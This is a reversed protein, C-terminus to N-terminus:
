VNNVIFSILVIELCWPPYKDYYVYFTKTYLYPDMPKKLLLDMSISLGFDIIVPINRKEDILINNEKLDFHILKKEKLIDVSELLYIHFKSCYHIFKSKNSEQKLMYFYDILTYKGVYRIQNSYFKNASENEKM